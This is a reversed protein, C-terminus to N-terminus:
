DLNDSPYGFKKFWYEGYGAVMMAKEDESLYAPHIGSKLSEVVYALAEEMDIM